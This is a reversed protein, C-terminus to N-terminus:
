RKSCIRNAAKWLSTLAQRVRDDYRKARSGLPREAEPPHNLLAIAHKRSYGAAAAFRDVIRSKATKGKARSYEQATRLLLERRVDLSLKKSM